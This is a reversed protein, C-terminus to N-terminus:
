LGEDVKMLLEEIVSPYHEHELALVKRAITEPTDEETLPCRAQFVIDGEDYHENAFHITIGSVQEGAVKVAAHVHSGYMGKGGFQPLLAPHINVIKRPYAQVLYDPVLWLFGALVILDIRHEDLISLIKKSEYFDARGILHTPIQHAHAIDLVGADKKNSVVLAVRGLDSKEFHEIIKRANSGGGSAFIAINKM